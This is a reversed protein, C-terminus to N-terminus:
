PLPPTRKRVPNCTESVACFFCVRMFHGGTCRPIDSRRGGASDGPDGPDERVELVSELIEELDKYPGEISKKLEKSSTELEKSAEKM